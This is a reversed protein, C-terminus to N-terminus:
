KILGLAVVPTGPYVSAFDTYGLVLANDQSILTELKTGLVDYIEGIIKGKKVIDGPEVKFRIIGSKSPLPKDSYILIKGEVEKRDHFEFFKQPKKIMELKAFINELSKVGCSVNKENVIYSEGLEITFSPIGRQILSDSLSGKPEDTDIVPMFGSIKAMKIAKPYVNKHDGAPERDLLVHPISHSWDNHLDIVLDPKTKVIESFIQYAIRKALTKSKDGPFSRNLDEESLTLNRSMTEFGRPNMLPIIHVEGAALNKRLKKVIEQTVVIGGVEDGHVCSTLWVAPGKKGSTLFIYPLKCFPSNTGDLVNIISHQIKIKGNKM